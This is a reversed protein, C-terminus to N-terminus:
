FDTCGAKEKRGEANKANFGEHRLKNDLSLVKACFFRADLWSARKM